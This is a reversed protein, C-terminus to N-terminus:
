YCGISLIDFFNVVKCLFFSFFLFIYLYEVVECGCVFEFLFIVVGYYGEWNVLSSMLWDDIFIM